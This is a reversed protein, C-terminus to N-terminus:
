EADQGVRLLERKETEGFGNHEGIYGTPVFMVAPTGLELLTPLGWRLISRYGDDFTVLASRPPLAEPAEQGRLVTALDLFQWGDQRMRRLYGAFVAVPLYHWTEWGGPAPGIKHFGLIALRRGQGAGSM